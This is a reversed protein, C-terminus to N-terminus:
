WWGFERYFYVTRSIDSHAVVQNSSDISNIEYSFILTDRSLTLLNAAKITDYDYIPGPAAWSKFTLDLINGNTSYSGECANCDGPKNYSFTGYDYFPDIRSAWESRIYSLFILEPDTQNFYVISDYITVGNYILNVVGSDTSLFPRWIGEMIGYICSGDDVNANHHDDYNYANLDTCGSIPDDPIQCSMFSMSISLGFIVYLNKM